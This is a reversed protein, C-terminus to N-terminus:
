LLVYLLTRFLPVFVATLLLGIIAFSSADQSIQGVFIPFTVNGDGFYMSFMALGIALISTFSAKEQM